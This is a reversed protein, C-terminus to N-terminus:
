NNKTKTKKSTMVYWVQLPWRPMIPVKVKLSDKPWGTCNFKVIFLLVRFICLSQKCKIGATCSIHPWVRMILCLCKWKTVYVSLAIIRYSPYKINWVFWKKQQCFFCRLFQSLHGTDSKMTLDSHHKSTKWQIPM